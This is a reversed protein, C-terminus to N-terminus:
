ASRRPTGPRTESVTQNETTEAPKRRGPRAGDGGHGAEEAAVPLEFEFRAGRGPPNSVRIHGGHALIIRQASFLGLGTGHPKTTQYPLFVTKLQDPPIGPGTDEVWARVRQHASETHVVVEGPRDGVAEIANFLLNTIARGLDVQNGWVPPLDNLELKVVLRERSRWLPATLEAAQRVAQNLDLRGMEGAEGTLHERLRHITESGRAVANAIMERYRRRESASRGEIMDLVAVAKRVVELVNNFDHTLSAAVRGIAEHRELDAMRQELARLESVDTLLLLVGIIKGDPNRLPAVSSIVELRRDRRPDVITARVGSYSAGALAKELSAGSPDCDPSTQVMDRLQAATRGMLERPSRAALRFAAPNADVLRLEDNFVFAADAVNALLQRLQLAGSRERARSRRLLEIITVIILGAGLLIFENESAFRERLQLDPRGPVIILRFWAYSLFVAALGSALGFFYEVLAIGPLFALIALARDGGKGLVLLTGGTAIGLPVLVGLIWRLFGRMTM